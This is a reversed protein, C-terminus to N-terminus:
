RRKVFRDCLTQQGAADIGLGKAFYEGIGGFQDYM